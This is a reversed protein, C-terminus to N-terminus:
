LSLTVISADSPVGSISKMLLLSEYSSATFYASWMTESTSPLSVIGDVASHPATLSDMICIEPTRGSSALCISNCRSTIFSMFSLWLSVRFVWRYIVIANLSIRLPNGFFVFVPFGAFTIDKILAISSSLFERNSFSFHFGL